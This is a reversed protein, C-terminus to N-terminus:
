ALTAISKCGLSNYEESGVEVVIPPIQHNGIADSIIPGIMYGGTGGGGILLTGAVFGSAPGFILAATGVSAGIVVASLKSVDSTMGTLVYYQSNLSIPRGYNNNFITLVDNSGYLYEAYNIEKGAMRTTSLYNYFDQKDIKGQEFFTISDDFAIQSCISCYMEPIFDGGVYNLEGEGFMWWCDAIEKALVEYVEEKAEVKKLDPKTMQECTKDSSLCVYSRQCRLPISDEPLVSSGRSIVSNRCLEKDTIEGLELRMLLFLIISFSAILIIMTVIQQTTLEGKKNKM